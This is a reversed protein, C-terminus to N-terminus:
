ESTASVEALAQRAIGFDHGARVLAAIQKERRDADRGFGRKRALRVATELADDESTESLSRSTDGDIGATRLAARVRSPGFGRRQLSGAKATAYAEDDVYNLEAMRAVVVDPDPDSAGDWGRERLKRTLYSSLKARTTVYRGAYFLALARLGAEDLPPAPRRASRQVM